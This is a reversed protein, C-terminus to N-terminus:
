DEGGKSADTTQLPEKVTAEVKQKENNKPLRSELVEKIDLRKQPHVHQDYCDELNKFIQVYRIYLFSFHQFADQEDQDQPPDLELMDLLDRMTDRWLLDYTVNAM